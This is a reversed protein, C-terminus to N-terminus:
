CHCPSIVTFPLLNYKVRTLHSQGRTAVNFCGLSRGSVAPAGRVLFINLYFSEALSFVLIESWRSNMWSSAPSSPPSQSYVYHKVIHSNLLPSFSFFFSDRELKLM